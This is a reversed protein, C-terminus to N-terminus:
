TTKYGRNKAIPVKLNLSAVAVLVDSTADLFHIQAKQTNIVIKGVWKSQFICAFAAATGFHGVGLNKIVKQSQSFNLQDVVISVQKVIYGFLRFM